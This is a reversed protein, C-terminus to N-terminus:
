LFEKGLAHLVRGTARCDTKKGLAAKPEESAKGQEIQPSGVYGDKLYDLIDEPSGKFTKKIYWDQGRFGTWLEVEDNAYDATVTVDLTKGEYAFIVVKGAFDFSFNTNPDANLSEIRKVVARLMRFDETETLDRTTFRYAVLIGAHDPLEGLVPVQKTEEVTMGAMFSDTPSDTPTRLGCGLSLALLAIALARM